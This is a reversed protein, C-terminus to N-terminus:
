MFMGSFLSTFVLNLLAFVIISVLGYMPMYKAGGKVDGRAVMSVIMSSCLAITLLASRAFGMFQEPTISLESISLPLNMATNSMTGGLEASFSGFIILLQYSLAFLLPAVFLVIASVFIMYNTNTAVMEQKLLKTEKINAVIRDLLETISGGASMSEVVLNLSRRLMPSEYKLTLERLADAVDEGTAVRKSILKIEQSLTGFELRNAEWLAKELALGGKMSESVLGLYQDLVAEVERTRTYITMDIFIYVAFMFAAVLGAHVILWLLFSAIFVLVLSSTAETLSPYIVLAYIVLTLLTTCHFLLSFVTYPEKTIGAKLLFERLKLRWKQPIFAKGLDVLLYQKLDMTM